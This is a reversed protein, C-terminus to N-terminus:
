GHKTLLGLFESRTRSDDKFSGLMASTVTTSGPKQVGRMTMCLHTAEIVVAVGRPSLNEQLCDAIQRTLREQIQLRRAFVDVVRALKSLGIVKGKPLYSIHCVGYFPLLHHECLSFFYIDKQTVMEDAEDKFIAGNIVKAVDAKYGSTLFQLSRAVRGPTKLLGEREPDEGLEVIQSRVLDALATDTYNEDDLAQPSDLVQEIMPKGRKEFWAGRM